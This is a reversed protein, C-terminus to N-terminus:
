NKNVNLWACNFFLLGNMIILVQALTDYNTYSFSFVSSDFPLESCSVEIVAAMEKSVQTRFSGFIVGNSKQRRPYYVLFWDSGQCFPKENMFTSIDKNQCPSNVKLSM